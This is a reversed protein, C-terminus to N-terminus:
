EIVHSSVRSALKRIAIRLRSTMALALRLVLLFVQEIAPLFRL